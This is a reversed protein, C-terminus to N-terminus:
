ACSSSAGESRRTSRRPLTSLSRVNGCLNVQSVENIRAEQVLSKRDRIQLVEGSKGVSLGNGTVYLARLDDRAPVPRRVEDLPPLDLIPSSPQPPDPAFLPLQAGENGAPLAMAAATEDPLCISV